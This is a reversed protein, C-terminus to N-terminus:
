AVFLSYNYLSIGKQVIFQVVAFSLLTHISFDSYCVVILISM